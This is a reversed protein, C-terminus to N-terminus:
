VLSSAKTSERPSRSWDNRAFSLFLNNSLKFLRTRRVQKNWIALHSFILSPLSTGPYTPPKQGCARSSM